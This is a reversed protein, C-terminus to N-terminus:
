FEQIRDRVYEHCLEQVLGDATLTLKTGSENEGERDRDETNDHHERDRVHSCLCLGDPDDDGIVQEIGYTIRHPLHGILQGCCQGGSIDLLAGAVGNRLRSRWTTRGRRCFLRCALLPFSSRIM